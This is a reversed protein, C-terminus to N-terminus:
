LHQTAHVLEVIQIAWSVQEGALNGIFCAGDGLIVRRKAETLDRRQAERYARQAFDSPVNDTDGSGAGEIAASYTVLM